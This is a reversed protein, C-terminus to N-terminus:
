TAAPDAARLARLEARLAQEEQWRETEDRIIAAIGTVAGGDDQLLTVTFAISRREGTAHLAPVRLLDHGYRSTGTAMVREYGEWHRGRQREPIILDLTQGVAQAASLGFMVVASDNWFTIRGASDAIVVADGCGRVVAALVADGLADAGIAELHAWCPPDGGDGVGDGTTM